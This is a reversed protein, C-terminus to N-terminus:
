TRKRKKLLQPALIRVAIMAVIWADQGGGFLPKVKEPFDLLSTIAINPNLTNKTGNM